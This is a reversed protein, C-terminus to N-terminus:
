TGEPLELWQWGEDILEQLPRAIGRHGPVGATFPEFAIRFYEYDPGWKALSPLDGDGRRILFHVPRNSWYSGSPNRRPPESDQLSRWVGTATM